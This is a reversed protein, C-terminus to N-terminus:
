EAFGPASAPRFLVVRSDPCHEALSLVALKLGIEAGRRDEALCFITKM